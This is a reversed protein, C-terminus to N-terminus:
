NTPSRRYHAFEIRAQVTTTTERKGFHSYVLDFPVIPISLDSMASALIFQERSIMEKHIWFQSVRM